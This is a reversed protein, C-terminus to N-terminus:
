LKLELKWIRKLEILMEQDGNQIVEVPPNARTRWQM